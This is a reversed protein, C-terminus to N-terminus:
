PTHSLDKTSLMLSVFQGANRLHAQTGAAASGPYFCPAALWDGPFHGCVRHGHQAPSGQERACALGTQKMSSSYATFLSLLLHTCMFAATPKTALALAKERPM